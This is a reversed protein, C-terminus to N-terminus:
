GNIVGGEIDESTGCDIMSVKSALENILNTLESLNCTDTITRIIAEENSNGDSISTAGIISILCDQIANLNNANVPTFNDQWVLDNYRIKSINEIHNTM